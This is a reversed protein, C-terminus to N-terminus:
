RSKTKGAANGLAALIEALKDIGGQEIAAAADDGRRKIAKVEKLRIHGVKKRFASKLRHMRYASAKMESEQLVPVVRRKRKTQRALEKCHLALIDKLKSYPPAFVRVISKPLDIFSAAESNSTELFGGDEFETVFDVSLPMPIGSLAMDVHRELEAQFYYACGVTHGDPSRYIRLPTRYAASGRPMTALRFDGLRTYGAGELFVAAEAYFTETGPLVRLTRLRSLRFDPGYYKRTEKRSERLVKKVISSARM